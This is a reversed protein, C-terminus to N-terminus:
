KLHAQWYKKSTHEICENEVTYQYWSINKQHPGM